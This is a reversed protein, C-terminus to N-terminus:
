LDGSITISHRVQPSLRINLFGLKEKTISEDCLLVKETFYNNHIYLSGQLEAYSDCAMGASEKASIVYVEGSLAGGLVACISHDLIVNQDISPCDSKVVAYEAKDIANGNGPPLYASATFAFFLFAIVLGFLKKM